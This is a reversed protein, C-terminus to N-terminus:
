SRRDDHPTYRLWTDTPPCLNRSIPVGLQSHIVRLDSQGVVLIRARQTASWAIESPQDRHKCQIENKRKINLSKEMRVRSTLVTTCSIVKLGFIQCTKNARMDRHIAILDLDMYFLSMIILFSPLLFIICLAFYVTFGASTGSKGFKEFMLIWGYLWGLNLIIWGFSIM